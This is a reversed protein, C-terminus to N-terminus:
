RRNYIDFPIQAFEINLRTLNDQDIYKTPAFVLHKKETKKFKEAYDLTLANSKLFELDPKYILYVKYDKSEGIFGTREDIKKENFEDGTATYFIYRAMETFSPLAKGELIRENDIPKGLEYYSFQGGLGKKMEEDTASKM